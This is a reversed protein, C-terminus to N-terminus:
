KNETEPVVCRRDRARLRLAIKPLLKGLLKGCGPSLTTLVSSRTRPHNPTPTRSTLQPSPNHLVFHYVRGQLGSRAQDQLRARSWLLIVNFALRSRKQHPVPVLIQCATKKAWQVHQLRGGSRRPDGM